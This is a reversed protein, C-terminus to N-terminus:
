QKAERKSGRQLMSELERPTLTEIGIAKADQVLHDILLSMQKTDYVSSGYYLIVNTCGKLKSTLTETQWGSGKANWAECLDKVAKDPVCVVSSTGGIARIADRYVQARDVGAKAAIKGILAWAFGNADLSRRRRHKKIDVDVECGNLEDWIARADGNVQLTLIYNGHLDRTLDRLQGTM